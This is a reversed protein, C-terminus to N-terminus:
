SKLPPTLHTTTLNQSPPEDAARHSTAECGLACCVPSSQEFLQQVVGDPGRSRCQGAGGAVVAVCVFESAAHCM